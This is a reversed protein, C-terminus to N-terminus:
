AYMAKLKDLDLVPIASCRCNFAEGPHGDSPPNDWQFTKGERDWHDGHGPTGHPYKGGPNGVVRTDGVNRWKYADIGSEEMRAKNLAATLKSTQDRAIFRARTESIGGIQQLRQVLTQGDPLPVGRYNDLVAKGVRDWHEAGVSKILSTNWAVALDAASAVAPSDVITAFDVGLSKAVNKELRKKQKKDAETVFAKATRPAVTRLRTNTEDAMQSLREAVVARSAETKLIGALNATNAKLINVERVLADTYNKRVSRDAKVAAMERRRKSKNHTGKPLILTM